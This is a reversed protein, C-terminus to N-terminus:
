VKKLIICDATACAVRRCEDATRAAHFSRAITSVCGDFVFHRSQRPRSPSHSFFFSADMQSARM